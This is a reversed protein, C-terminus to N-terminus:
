EEGAVYSKGAPLPLTKRLIFDRVSVIGRKTKFFTTGNCRDEVLWTTGRVTASGDHGETRFNGHGSGWLAGSTAKGPRLSVSSAFARPSGGKGGKGTKSKKAKPAPCFGTDIVELVVLNTGEAQKVKFVGGYFEATQEKGGPDISTLTVRGKTADIVAGVPIEKLEELPVAKNTGPLKITVKGAEPKVVVKEGNTPTVPPNLAPTAPPNTVANQAPPKTEEHHEPETEPEHEPEPPVYKFCESFESTRHGLAATATVTIYIQDDSSPPAVTGAFANAGPEGEAIEAAGLFSEGEGASLPSCVAGAYFDLEIPEDEGSTVAGKVTITGAGTEVAEITPVAPAPAGIAIGKGENGYISNGRVTARSLGSEVLVGPGGNYAVNNPGPADGLHSGITAEGAGAGVLVGGEGNGDVAGTPSIGIDDYGVQTENGFDKVGWEENGAIYNYVVGGCGGGITNGNSGEEVEVGAGNPLDAGGLGVGLWSACVQSDGAGGLYVGAEAFGGIALGEILAEGHTAEL